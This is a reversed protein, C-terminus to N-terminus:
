LIRTYKVDLHWPPNDGMKLGHLAEQAALSEAITTMTVIAVGREPTLRISEIEGFQKVLEAVQPETTQHNIPGVEIHRTAGKEQVARRISNDLPPCKAWNVMCQRGRLFIGQGTSQQGNHWFKAADAEDVFNLFAYTTFFRISEILGYPNSLESLMRVETGHPLNGIYISRSPQLQKFDIFGSRGSGTDGRGGGRGGHDGRGGRGDRNLNRRCNQQATTFTIQIEKDQEIPTNLTPFLASARVGNFADRAKVASEISCFNVYGNRSQRMVRVSEIPGMSGFREELFDPTIADQLNGIYLNRTAGQMIQDRLEPSLAKKKGWTLESPPASSGSFPITPREELLAAASHAQVFSIYAENRTKDIRFTEIAGYVGVENVLDELSTTPPLKRIFVARSLPEPRPDGGMGGGMTGGLGMGGGM